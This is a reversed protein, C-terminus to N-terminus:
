RPYSRVRARLRVAFGPFLTWESFHLWGSAAALRQCGGSLLSLFVGLRFNRGFDFDVDDCRRVSTKEFAPHRLEVLPRV